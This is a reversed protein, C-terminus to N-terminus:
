NKQYVLILYESVSTDLEVPHRRLFASTFRPKYVAVKRFGHSILMSHYDECNRQFFEIQVGPAPCMFDLNRATVRFLKGRGQNKQVFEPNFVALGIIGGPVLAEQFHALTTGLDAIFQLVMISTILDFPASPIKHIKASNYRYFETDSINTKAIALMAASTDTGVVEYGLSALKACFGGTGCGFDLARLGTASVQARRIGKLLAPWALLVNDAAGSSLEPADRHTNFYESLRDWHNM